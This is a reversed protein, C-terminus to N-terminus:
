APTLGIDAVALLRKPVANRQAGPTTNSSWVEGNLMEVSNSLPCSISIDWRVPISILICPNKWNKTDGNVGTAGCCTAFLGDSRNNLQNNTKSLAANGSQGCTGVIQGLAFKPSGDNQSTSFSIMKTDGTYINNNPVSTLRTDRDSLKKISSSLRCCARKRCDM